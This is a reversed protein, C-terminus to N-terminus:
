PSPRLRRASPAVRRAARAPSRSGRLRDPGPPRRPNLPSSRPNPPACCHSLSVLTRKARGAWACADQTCLSACMPFCPSAIPVAALRPIHGGGGSRRGWFVRCAHCARCVRCARSHTGHAIGQAVDHGDDDTVDRQPQGGAHQQDGLSQGPPPRRHPADDDVGSGHLHQERGQGPPALWQRRDRGGGDEDRSPVDEVSESEWEIAYAPAQEGAEVGDVRDGVLDVCQEGGLVPSRHTSAVDDCDLRDALGRPGQARRHPRQRAGPQGCQDAIVDLQQAEHQGRQEDDQRDLVPLAM